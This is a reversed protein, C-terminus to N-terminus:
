ADARTSRQLWDVRKGHFLPNHSKLPSIATRATEQPPRATEADMRYTGSPDHAPAPRWTGLGPRALTTASRRSASRLHSTPRKCGVIAINWTSSGFPPMRRLGAGWSAIFPTSAALERIANATIARVMLFHAPRKLVAARPVAHPIWRSTIDRLDLRATRVGWSDCHASQGHRVFQDSVFRKHRWEAGKVSHIFRHMFRSDREIM